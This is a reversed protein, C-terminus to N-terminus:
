PGQSWQSEGTARPYPPRHGKRAPRCIEQELKGQRPASAQEWPGSKEASWSNGWNSFVTAIDRNHPRVPGATSAHLHPSVASSGCICDISSLVPQKMARQTCRCSGNPESHLFSRHLARVHHDLSKTPGCPNGLEEEILRNISRNCLDHLNEKDHHSASEWPGTGWNTKSSIIWAGTFCTAPELDDVNRDPRLPKSGRDLSNPPGLTEGTAPCPSRHGLQAPRAAEGLRERGQRPASVTEWPRASWPSEAIARPCPTRRGKKRTTLTGCEWLQVQRSVRKKSSKM